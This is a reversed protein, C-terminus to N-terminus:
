QRTALVVTEVHPTHPFLDVGQIAKISYKQTLKALDRALTTPNCSVLILFQPQYQLIASVAEDEIGSRPPDLILLNPLSYQKFFKQLNKSASCIFKAFACQNLQANEEALQIAKEVVEVGLSFPKKYSYGPTDVSFEKVYELSFNKKNEICLNALSLSISGIGCYFDWIHANKEPLVASAFDCVVQYLIEAMASNVQFFASNGLKFQIERGSITLKECLMTKGFEQVIREGYAVDTKSKRESHVFGAIEDKLAEYCALISQEEEKGHQKSFPYTILEVTWTNQFFRLVAYRYFDYQFNQLVSRLLALIKMAHPDQLKCDTVEVLEHSNKRRLGLALKGNQMAFAFEMKNRYFITENQRAAATPHSLPSLLGYFCKEFNQVKGLRKLANKIANEKELVQKEYVISQWACGGCEAQHPCIGSAAFPSQELIEVCKASLFNKKIEILEARVTQGIVANEVFVVMGAYQANQCLLDQNSLNLAPLNEIRGVARGDHSMSTLQVVIYEKMNVCFLPM